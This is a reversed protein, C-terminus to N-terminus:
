RRRPTAMDRLVYSVFIPITIVVRRWIRRPELIFRHVWQLGLNRMWAPAHPVRGAYFDFVAGIAAACRVDCCSVLEPLMKEQKPSGLGVWLVDARFERVRRGMEEIEARSFEPQHPPVFYDVASIQPYEKRYKAVLDGIAGLHGGLFFVRGRRRRALEASLARFFEYGYVRHVRRQILLRGALALGVGDCFIDSSEVIARHLDADQEALVISHPNLFIMSRTGRDDLQDCVDPAGPAAPAAPSPHPRSM